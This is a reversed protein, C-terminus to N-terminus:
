GLAVNKEARHWTLGLQYPRTGSMRQLVFLVSGVQFPFALLTILLGIRLRALNVDEDKARVATMVEPGYIRDGLGTENVLSAALGPWFFMVLYFVALIEFATWSVARRRQPPLLRVPPWKSLDIPM